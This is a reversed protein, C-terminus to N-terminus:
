DNYLTLTLEMDTDWLTWLVVDNDANRTESTVTFLKERGTKPSVLRFGMDCADNFVRGFPNISKTLDSACASGRNEDWTFRAASYRPLTKNEM